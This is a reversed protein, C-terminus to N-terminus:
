KNIYMLASANRWSTFESIDLYVIDGVSFGKEETVGWYGYEHGQIYYTNNNDRGGASWSNWKTTKNADYRNFTINYATTPIKVTWTTDDEKTMIYSKHNNTNDVAEILASDKGVWKQETTDVLYLTYYQTAASVNVTPNELIFGTLVIIVAMFCAIISKLKKKQNILGRM